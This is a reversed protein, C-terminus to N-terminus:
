QRDRDHVGLSRPRRRRSTQRTPTTVSKPTPLPELPTPAEPQAASDYTAPTASPGSCRTALQLAKLAPPQALARALEQLRRVNIGHLGEGVLRTADNALALFTPHLLYKGPRAAAELTQDGRAVDTVLTATWGEPSSHPLMLQGLVDFADATVIEGGHPVDAQGQASAPGLDKEAWSHARVHVALAIATRVFEEQAAGVPPYGPLNPGLM